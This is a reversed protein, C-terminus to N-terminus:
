AESQPELWVQSVVAAGQAQLALVPGLGIPPAQSFSTSQEPPFSAESRTHLVLELVHMAPQWPSRSQGEPLLQSLLPAGHTQAALEEEFGRPAVQEVSVSHEPPLGPEPLTHLAFELVQM